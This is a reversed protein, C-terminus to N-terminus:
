RTYKLKCAVFMSGGCRLYNLVQLDSNFDILSTEFYLTSVSGFSELPLGYLDMMSPSTYGLRGNMTRSNFGDNEISIIIIIRYRRESKM